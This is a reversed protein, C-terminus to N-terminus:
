PTDNRCREVRQLFREHKERWRRTDILGSKLKRMHSLNPIKGHIKFPVCKSCGRLVIQRDRTQCFTCAEDM